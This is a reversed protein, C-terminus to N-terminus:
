LHCVLPIPHGRTFATLITFWTSMEFGCKFVSVCLGIDMVVLSLQYYKIICSVWATCRLAGGSGTTSKM